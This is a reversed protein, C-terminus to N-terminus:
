LNESAIQIDAGQHIPQAKMQLQQIKHMMDQLQQQLEEFESRVANTRNTQTTGAVEQNPDIRNNYTQPDIDNQEFKSPTKVADVLSAAQSDTNAPLNVNGESVSVFDQVLAPQSVETSFTEVGEFDKVAIQDNLFSNLGSAQLRSESLKFEKLLEEKQQLHEELRSLQKKYTLSKRTSHEWGGLAAVSIGAGISLLTAFVVYPAAVDRLRGHFFSEEQIQIGVQNEGMMALPATMAAFVVGSTIVSPLILKGIASLTM